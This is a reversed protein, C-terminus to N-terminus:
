RSQMLIWDRVCELKYGYDFSNMHESKDLAKTGEVVSGIKWRIFIHDNGEALLASVASELEARDAQADIGEIFSYSIGESDLMAMIENQGNCAKEDGGAAFFVMRQTKLGQLENINWQGDVILVAAYLDPERSAVLQTTMAGMSQGTGYIRNQDVAYKDAIARIARPTLDVYDTTKYGGNDDLITEPFVLTVVIVPEKSQVKSSAWVIGGWGQTLSYKMTSGATTMDGIFVVMPYKNSEDYGDPLYINYPVSLGTESDTYSDKQYKSASEKIMEQLEADSTKGMLLPMFTGMIGSVGGIAFFAIVLAAIIGLFIFLGIKKKGKEKAEVM